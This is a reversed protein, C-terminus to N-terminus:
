SQIRQSSRGYRYELYDYFILSYIFELLLSKASKPIKLIQPQFNPLFDIKGPLTSRIKM